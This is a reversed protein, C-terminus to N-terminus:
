RVGEGLYLQSRVYTYNYAYARGDPTIFPNAVEDVAMPPHLEKWPTRKGTQLDIISVPLMGNQDHHTMVYVSRNDARWGVPRDHPTLGSIAMRGGGESSFVCWEREGCQTMFQRRDPSVMPFADPVEPTLPRLAQTTRNWSFFRWSKESPLVGGVLYQDDGALWGVIVGRNRALAPITIDLTEGPGTPMLIFRRIAVDRSSYGTVWKGDPSLAFAAGDGLRVPASGDLRRLYISGKPGGSEGSTNALLVGGDQSIGRLEAADLISADREESAGPPLTRIGMRGTDSSFLMRGDAAIDFLALRGPFRAVVRQQGDL